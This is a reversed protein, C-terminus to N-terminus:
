ATLKPQAPEAANAAAVPTSLPFGGAKALKKDMFRWKLRYCVYIMIVVNLVFIIAPLVSRREILEWIEVPLLLGTTLVLLWEAWAFDLMLGVGEVLFLVAYVIAGIKLEKLHNADINVIKELLWYFHHNGPDLRWDDLMSVLADHQGKGILIQAIYALFVLGAAKCLKGAGILMMPWHSHSQSIPGGKKLPKKPPKRM